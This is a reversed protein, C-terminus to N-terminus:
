TVDKFMTKVVDKGNRTTLIYYSKNKCEVRTLFTSQRINNIDDKKVRKKNFLLYFNVGESDISFEYCFKTLYYLLVLGDLFLNIINALQTSKKYLVFIYFGANLLIFLPIIMYLTKNVKYRKM